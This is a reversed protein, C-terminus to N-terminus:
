DTILDVATDLPDGLRKYKKKLLFMRVDRRIEHLNVAIGFSVFVGDLKSGSVQNLLTKRYGVVTRLGVWRIPKFIASAGADLISVFGKSTILTLDNQSPTYTLKNEGFGFEFPIGFTFFRSNFYVFEINTSAYKLNLHRNFYGNDQTRSYDSLEDNLSYYGLTLRIKEKLLIGADFGQINYSDGKYFTLKNDIRLQIRMLPPKMIAISDKKFQKKNYKKQSFAGNVCLILIFISLATKV